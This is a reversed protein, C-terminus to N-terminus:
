DRVTRFENAMEKYYERAKSRLLKGDPLMITGCDCERFVRKMDAWGSIWHHQHSRTSDM